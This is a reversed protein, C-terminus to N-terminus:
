AALPAPWRRSGGCRRATASALPIVRRSSIAAASYSNLPCAVNSMVAVRRSVRTCFATSASRSAQAKMASRVTYSRSADNTASIGADSKSSATHVFADRLIARSIRARVSPFSHASHVFLRREIQMAGWVDILIPDGHEIPVAESLVGFGVQADLQPHERPQQRLPPWVMLSRDGHSGVSGFTSSSARAWATRVSRSGWAVGRAFAMARANTRERPMSTTSFSRGTIDGYARPHGAREWVGLLTRSM